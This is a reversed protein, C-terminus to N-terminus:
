LKKVIELMRVAAKGDGFPNVFSATTSIQQLIKTVATVINQREVSVHCVTGQEQAEPRETQSRLLIVPKGLTPAEEQIGGSDTLILDCTQM